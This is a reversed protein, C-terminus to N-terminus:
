KFKVIKGHYVGFLEEPFGDDEEMQERVFSKLTSPHISEKPEVEIGLERLNEAAALARARDGRPLRVAFGSTIIDAHNREELWRVADQWRDPPIKANYFDHLSIKSGDKLVVEQIEHDEMLEPLHRQSIDNYKDKLKKLETEKAQIKHDLERLMDGFKRIDDLASDAAGEMPLIQQTM